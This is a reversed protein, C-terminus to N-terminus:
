KGIMLAKTFMRKVADISQANAEYSRMTTIMNTMEEVVNIDPYAVYGQENADPHGPEYVMKFPRDDNVMGRVTVGHLDRNLQDKMAEDFPTYVPSSELSLAKRRYPGGEVTRTTRANAMNMSIVNLYARQARLGSAGIDLATMFDM